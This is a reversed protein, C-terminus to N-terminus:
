KKITPKLKKNVKLTELMKKEYVKLREDYLDRIYGDYERDLNQQLLETQYRLGNYEADRFYKDNPKHMMVNFFWRQPRKMTQTVVHGNFLNMGINDGSVIKRKEADGKLSLCKLFNLILALIIQIIIKM